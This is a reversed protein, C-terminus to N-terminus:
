SVVGAAFRAIEPGAGDDCDGRRSTLALAPLNAAELARRQGPVLWALGEDDDSLWQVVADARVQRAAAVLRAGADGFARPGLTGACVQRAVTEVPDGEEAVAPGLRLACREHLEAVISAGTEEVMRHLRDDPPPSGALLIRASPARGAPIAHEALLPQVDAFLSARALKEHLPGDSGRTSALRGFVARVENARRIGAGFRAIDIGLQLALSRIAAETHRLSAARPVKAVDFVLAEPGALEGRRQLECVYYYLRHASDNGRTFVVQALADFRGDFWDELMSRAWLPFRGELWKDARHTARDVNWPLHMAPRAAALLLDLPVDGGVYGIARDNAGVQALPDSLITDLAKELSSM